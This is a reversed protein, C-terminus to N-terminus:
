EETWQKALKFLNMSVDPNNPPQYSAAVPRWYIGQGKNTANNGHLFVNYLYMYGADTHM